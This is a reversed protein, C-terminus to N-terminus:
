PKDTNNTETSSKSLDLLKMMREIQEPPVGGAIMNALRMTISEAIVDMRQMHAVRREQDQMQQVTEVQDLYTPATSTIPTPVSKLKSM